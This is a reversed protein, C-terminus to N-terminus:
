GRWFFLSQWWRRGSRYDDWDELVERLEEITERREEAPLRALMDILTTRVQDMARTGRATMKAQVDALLKNAKSRDFPQVELLAVLQETTKRVERHMAKREELWTKRQEYMKERFEKRVDRPLSKLIDATAGITNPGRDRANAQSPMGVALVTFIIAVSFFMYFITTASVFAFPIVSQKKTEKIIKTM